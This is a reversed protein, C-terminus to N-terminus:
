TANTLQERAIRARANLRVLLKRALAVRVVMKPKGAATLKEHFAALDPDYKRAIGAVLFLLSRVPARGGRIHKAGQRKGSDNAIPALGALKAIAKNSVLGIQPLQALILGVSRGALGKFSRIARDLGAWLPDDAIQAAIQAALARKHRNLFAIAEDISDRMWDDRASSRRQKNVTLDGVVQGLRAVLAQLRQSQLSPPPTPALRKALAFRAIAMADIRDTKELWGMSEAFGRVNRANAIACPQGLQWLLLFAQREYSGSAEMAVLETGHGACFSALDAIGGADNAFRSAVGCPEVHADLWDKSVDVGCVIKNM